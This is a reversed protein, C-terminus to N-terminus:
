SKCTFTKQKQKQKKEEREGIELETYKEKGAVIPHHLMYRADNNKDRILDVPVHVVDNICRTVAIAICSICMQTIKSLFLILMYQIEIRREM